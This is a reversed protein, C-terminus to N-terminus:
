LVACIQLCAPNHLYAPLNCVYRYVNYLKLALEMDVTAKLRHYEKHPIIKLQEKDHLGGAVYPTNTRALNYFETVLSGIDLMYLEPIKM